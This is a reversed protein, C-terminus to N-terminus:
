VKGLCIPTANWHRQVFTGAVLRATGKSLRLCCRCCCAPMCARAWGLHVARPAQSLPLWCTEACCRPEKCRQTTYLRMHSLWFGDPLHPFGWALTQSKVKPAKTKTKKPQQPQWSSGFSWFATLNKETTCPWNFVSFATLKQMPLITVHYKGLCCTYENELISYPMRNHSVASVGRHINLAM